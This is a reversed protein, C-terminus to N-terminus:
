HPAARRFSAEGTLRAIRWGAPTDHCRVRYVGVQLPQLTDLSLLSGDDQGAYVVVYHISDHMDAAQGDLVTNSILHRTVLDAPREELAQQVEDAGVLRKGQRVWLGDSGFLAAAECYRREDLYVFLRHLLGAVAPTVDYQTSQSM